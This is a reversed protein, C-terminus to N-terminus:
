ALTHRRKPSPRVAGTVQIPQHRTRAASPAVSSINNPTLALTPEFGVTVAVYRPGQKGKNILSLLPRKSQRSPLRQCRIPLVRTRRAPGAALKAGWGLALTSDSSAGCAVMMSM